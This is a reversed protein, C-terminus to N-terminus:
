RISESPQVRMMQRAPIVAAIVGCVVTIVFSLIFNVYTVNCYIENKELVEGCLGTVVLQVAIALCASLLTMAVIEAVLCGTLYRNHAGLAKLIALDKKRELMWYIMLNTINLIAITFVLVTAIVTIIISNWFSDEGDTLLECYTLEIGHEKAERELEGFKSIMVDKGSKLVAGIWNEEFYEKCTEAVDGMPAYIIDDWKTGRNERGCIGAVHYEQGNLQIVDGVEIGHEKAISQGAIMWRAEDQIQQVTFYEGAIMPIHWEEEKEFIVPVVQYSKGYENLEVTQFSVIQLEGIKGIRECLDLVSEARVSDECRLEIELQSEPVGSNEDYTQKMTEVSMSIGVSLVLNGIFFGLMILAVTLKKSKWQNIVYEKM